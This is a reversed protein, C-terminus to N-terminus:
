NRRNERVAKHLLDNIRVLLSPVTFDPIPTGHKQHFKFLQCEERDEVNDCRNSDFYAKFRDLRRVVEARDGLNLKQVMPPGPDAEFHPHTSTYTKRIPKDGEFNIPVDGMWLMAGHSLAETAVHGLASYVGFNVVIAVEDFLNQMDGFSQPGRNEINPHIHRLPGRPYDIVTAIVPMNDALIRAQRSYLGIMHPEKKWAKGWLLAKWRRPRRGPQPQPQPQPQSVTTLVGRTGRELWHRVIRNEERAAANKEVIRPAGTVSAELLMRGSRTHELRRVFDLRSPLHGSLLLDLHRHGTVVAANGVFTNSEHYGRIMSLYRDMSTLNAGWYILPGDKCNPDDYHPETGFSDQIYMRPLVFEKYDEFTGFGVTKNFFKKKFFDVSLFDCLIMDFSEFYAKQESRTKPYKGQHMPFGVIEVGLKEMALYYDVWITIDGLTQGKRGDQKMLWWYGEFFLVRPPRDMSAFGFPAKWAKSDPTAQYYRTVLQMAEELVKGFAGARKQTFPNSRFPETKLLPDPTDTPHPEFNALFELFDVKGHGHRLNKGNALSQVGDFVDKENAIDKKEAVKARAHHYKDELHKRHEEHLGVASANPHGSRHGERHLFTAPADTKARRLPGHEASWGDRPLSLPADRMAWFATAQTSEVFVLVTIRVTLVLAM